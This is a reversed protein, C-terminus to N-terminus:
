DTTCPDRERGPLIHNKTNKKKKKAFLQQGVRHRRRETVLRGSDPAKCVPRKLPMLGASNPKRRATNADRQRERGTFQAASLNIWRARGEGCGGGHRPLVHRSVRTGSAALRRTGTGPPDRPPRVTETHPSTPECVHARRTCARAVCLLWGLSVERWLGSEQKNKCRPGIFCAM